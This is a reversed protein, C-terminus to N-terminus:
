MSKSFFESGFNALKILLNKFRTKGYVIGKLKTKLCRFDALAGGNLSNAVSGGCDKGKNLLMDLEVDDSCFQVFVQLDKISTLGCTQCDVHSQL